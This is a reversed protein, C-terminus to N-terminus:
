RRWASICGTSRAPPSSLRCLIREARSWCGGCATPPPARRRHRGPRYPWRAAPHHDAGGLVPSATRLGARRVCRLWRGGAGACRTAVSRQPRDGRAGSRTGRGQARDIASRRRGGDRRRRDGRRGAGAAQACPPDIRTWQHLAFARDGHRDATSPNVWSASSSHLGQVGNRPMAARSPPMFSGSIADRSWIRRISSTMDRRWGYFNLGYSLKPPAM